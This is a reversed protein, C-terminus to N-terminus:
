LGAAAAAVIRGALMQLRASVNEVKRGSRVLTWRGLSDLYMIVSCGKRASRRLAALCPTFPSSEELSRLALGAGRLFCESRKGEKDGLEERRELDRSLARDEVATESAVDISTCTSPLSVSSCAMAPM